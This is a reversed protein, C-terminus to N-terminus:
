GGVHDGPPPYTFLGPESTTLLKRAEAATIRGLHVDRWMLYLDRTPIALVGHSIAVDVQGRLSAPRDSPDPTNRHDNFIWWSPPVTLNVAIYRERQERVQRLDNTRADNPYAKVEGLVLLGEEDPDQIHLDERKAENPSLTQDVLTVNFGLGSLLQAATATLEDGSKWLVGRVGTDAEEGEAEQEATLARHEDILTNVQNAVTDLRSQLDVQEATYWNAPTRLRPPRRPVAERDTEHLFELFARLWVLLDAQDPVTLGVYKWSVVEDYIAEDKEHGTPSYYAVLPADSTWVLPSEGVKLSLVGPVQPPDPRIDAILQDVASEFPGLDDLNLLERGIQGTRGIVVMWESMINMLDERVRTERHSFDRVTQAFELPTPNGIDISLEDRIEKWVWDEPRRVEHSTQFGGWLLVHAKVPGVIEQAAIVLDIEDFGPGRGRYLTGCLPEIRALETDDLGVAAVRPRAQPNRVVGYPRLVPKKPEIREVACM